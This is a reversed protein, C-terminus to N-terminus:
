RRTWSRRGGEAQGVVAAPGLDARSHHVVEYNGGFQPYENKFTHFCHPCSTVIRKRVKAENLAEVNQRRRSSPVSVRQGGPAGPGGLLDRGAQGLVAFRVGQGRAAGRGAGADLKKIRDDFAAACGVFLLYEPNEPQDDVTPV